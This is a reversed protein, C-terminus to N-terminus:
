DYVQVKAAALTSVMRFSEGGLELILLFRSIAPVERVLILRGIFGTATWKM